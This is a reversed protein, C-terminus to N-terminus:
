CQEAFIEEATLCTFRSLLGNVRKSRDIVEIKSMQDRRAAIAGISGKEQPLPLSPWNSPLINSFLPLTGNSYDVVSAASSVSHPHPHRVFEDSRPSLSSDPTNYYLSDDLSPFGQLYPYTSTTHVGLSNYSEYERRLTEPNVLSGISIADSHPRSVSGHTM